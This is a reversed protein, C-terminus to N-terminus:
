LVGGVPTIREVPREDGAETWGDLESWFQDLHCDHECDSMWCHTGCFGDRCCDSVVM